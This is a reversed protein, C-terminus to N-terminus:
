KWAADAPMGPKLAGDENSLTIEVAFVLNAREEATTVNRPTFAARDAIRTVHGQFRHNPFSDVTVYVRQGMHVQGLEPEPVYATLRVQSLDAVTLLTAGPAAVEGPHAVVELVIGDTPVRVSRTARSSLLADLAARAQAVRAQLAAVQETTPGAKLGELQAQAAVVQANAEALAAVAQDAQAEFVQPGQRQSYLHALESELGEKQVAASNVAVWAQWWRNPALHAELPLSPVTYYIYGGPVSPAEIKHRGPGGAESIEQQAESFADKAIEAADKLALSQALRHQQAQIQAEHLAIQLRIEQPNAVLAATDSVAQMAALRAREAQLLEAEAIAIKGPRTGAQAVSVRAEALSVAARAAEIQADLVTTDLQVVIEGAAVTDGSRVARVRPSSVILGGYESAIALEDVQIIGSASLNALDSTAMLAASMGGPALRSYLVLAAIAVSLLLGLVLLGRRRGRHAPSAASATSLATKERRTHGTELGAQPLSSRSIARRPKPAARAGLPALQAITTQQEAGSSRGNREKLKKARERCQQQRTVGEVCRSLWLWAEANDPDALTAQALRRRALARDGAQLALIGERLCDQSGINSPQRDSL